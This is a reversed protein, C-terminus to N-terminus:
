AAAVRDTSSAQHEVTSFPNGRTSRVRAIVRWSPTSKIPRQFSGEYSFVTMGLRPASGAHSDTIGQRNRKNGGAPAKREIAFSLRLLVGASVKPKLVEEKIYLLQM